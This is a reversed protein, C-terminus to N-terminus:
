PTREFVSQVNGIYSDKLSEWKCFVKSPTVVKKGFNQRDYQWSSAHCVCKSHFCNSNFIKDANVIHSSDCSVAWDWTSTRPLKGIVLFKQRRLFKKGIMWRDYQGYTPVHTSAHCTYLFDILLLHKEGIDFQRASFFVSLLM